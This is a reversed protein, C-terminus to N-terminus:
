HLPCICFEEILQVYSVINAKVYKRFRDPLGLLRPFDPSHVYVGRPIERSLAPPSSYVSPPEDNTPRVKPGTILIFARKNNFIRRRTSAFRPSFIGNEYFNWIKKNSM